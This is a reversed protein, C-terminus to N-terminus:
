ALRRGRDRVAAGLDSVRRQKMGTLKEADAKSFTRPDRNTKSPRGDGRVTADWWAVFKEQEAIKDDVATVGHGHHGVGRRRDHRPRRVRLHADDHRRQHLVGARKLATFSCSSM